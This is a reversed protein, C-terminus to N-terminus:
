RKKKISRIQESFSLPKAAPKKPTVGSANAAPQSTRNNPLARSPKLAAAYRAFKAKMQVALHNYGADKGKAAFVGQIATTNQEVYAEVDARYDALEPHKETFERWITDSAEKVSQQRHITNIVDNAVREGHKKLFGKPDAYYEEENFDDEPPAVPPTVSQAHPFTQLIDQTGQRYANAIRDDEEIKAQAYAYAEEQTAFFKDGIKYKGQPPEDAADIDEDIPDAESPEDGAPAEIDEMEHALSEDVENGAGDFTATRRPTGQTIGTM